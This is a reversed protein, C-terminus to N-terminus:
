RPNTSPCTMGWRFFTAWNSCGFDALVNNGDGWTTENGGTTCPIGVDFIMPQFTIFQSLDWNPKGTCNDVPVLITMIKSNCPPIYGEGANGHMVAYILGWVANPNRPNMWSSSPPMDDILSWIANQMDAVTITHQPLGDPTFTGPTPVGNSFGFPYIKSGSNTYGPVTGGENFHNILYNILDFNNPFEIGNVGLIEPPLAEGYSSFLIGCQDGLTALKDKDICYGYFTGPPDSGPPDYESLFGADDGFDIKFYGNTYDRQLNYHVTGNPLAKMYGDASGALYVVGHAAVAYYGDPNVNEVPLTYEFEYSTVGPTFNPDNDSNYTFQGVQPCGAPNQKIQSITDAMMFHIQNLSWPVWSGIPPECVYRVKIKNTVGQIPLFEIYGVYTSNPPRGTWLEIHQQQNPCLKPYDTGVGAFTQPIGVLGTTIGYPDEQKQKDNNTPVIPSENCSQMVIFGGLIVAFIFYFVKKGM